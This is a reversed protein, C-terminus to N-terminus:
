IEQGLATGIRLVVTQAILHFDLRTGRERVGNIAADTANMDM